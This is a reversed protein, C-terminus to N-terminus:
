LVSLMLFQRVLAARDPRRRTRVREGMGRSSARARRIGRPTQEEYSTIKM